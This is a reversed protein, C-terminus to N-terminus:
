LLNAPELGDIDVRGMLWALRTAPDLANATDPMPTMGMPKRAKWLMGLLRLERRVYDPPLNAFEYGLGLDVRHIETERQRMMPLQVKSRDGAISEVSGTWDECARLAAQVAASRMAVDDVLATWSRGAGAEIDANRGDRGGAYQPEGDLMALISDGNRAVHTMVHGVTWGPLRSPVAPDVPDIGEIWAVFDQESDICSSLERDLSRRDIPHEAVLHSALRQM